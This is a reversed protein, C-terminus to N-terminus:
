YGAKISDSFSEDADKIATSRLWYRLAKPKVFYVKNKEYLKLVRIISVNSSYANEALTKIHETWVDLKETEVEVVNEGYNFETIYFDNLDYIKKLYFSKGSKGYVSNLLKNYVESYSRLEQITADKNVDAKSGKSLLEIQYNLVDDCLIQEVFSLQMEEADESYPLNMIDQKLISTARGVGFENSTAAVFLKYIERNKEFSQYLNFLQQREVEPAHIGVVSDKFTLYKDSYFTPIKYKGINEKILLHPPQYIKEDGTSHFEEELETFILSEDVSDERFARTPLSEKGTIFAAKVRNKNNTTGVIYGENAEWEIGEKKKTEIYKGISGIYSFRDVLNNLRGGGLLNCKWVHKDNIASQQSVYHFDYKDIEFFIKQEVSKTRRVTVHTIPTDEDVTQKRASIAATPVKATGFLVADLNTFDWIQSVQYKTFFQKKFEASNNYLLPASPMILCLLGNEKLLHPSQDLFMLALQNQPFINKKADLKQSIELNLKIEKKNRDLFYYIEGKDKKISLEVFPANGIVLDFMGFNDTNEIYEFFNQQKFNTQFAKNFKLKTWIEKPTLEDCLALCLSFVTLRVADEEIDVGFINEKIIDLLQESKLSTLEGTKKFEKYRYRQVLRKFASVLFIGSGCSVDITKVSLNGIDSQPMSEDVLTNVLFEPTYVADKRENLFTEYVTSILEVPLHNFSYMRWFHAQKTQLNVDGELFEALKKLDASAVISKEADKWEFIKGNFKSSLEEFLPIIQGKKRLVDCFSSAEFKQFFDKALLGDNENENGREELYKILISFVLLKNATEKPLDTNELFSKRVDKLHKILMKYASESELFHGEAQKSEWFIGTDFLKKSYLKVVESALNIAPVIPSTKIKNENSVTVPKRTDFIEVDTKGIVIFMPIRCNSWLDRHIEALKEKSLQNQSNDYIYIQPIPSRNEEKPFLRFYVARAQFNAAEELALVQSFALTSDPKESVLVVSRFEKDAPDFDMRKLNKIFDHM